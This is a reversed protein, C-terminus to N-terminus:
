AIRRTQRLYYGISAEDWEAPINRRVVDPYREILDISHVYCAFDSAPYALHVSGPLHGHRNKDEPPWISRSHVLLVYLPADEPPNDEWLRLQNTEALGLRYDAQRVMGCPTPVTAATLTVPGSVIETHNWPQGTQKYVGSGIRHRDAAARLLGELKGRAWFPRVNEAEQDAFNQQCKEWADRRALFVAETAAKMYAEPLHTFTLEEPEDANM